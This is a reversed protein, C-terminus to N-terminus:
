TCEENSLDFHFKNLSQKFKEPHFIVESLDKFIKNAFVFTNFIKEHLSKHSGSFNNSCLYDFRWPFNPYNIVDEPSLNPNQSIYAWSDEFMEPCELIDSFNISINDPLLLKNWPLDPTMIMDNMSIGPNTSLTDWCWPKDRNNLVTCIDINPNFSLHYFNIDECLVTSIEKLDDFTLGPNYHLDLWNLGQDKHKIVFEKTLNPNEMVAKMNWPLDPSSEIDDITFASNKSLNYWCWKYETNKKIFELTLNPNRSVQYWSWNFNTNNEIFEITIMPNSALFYTVINKHYKIEGNSQVLYEFYHQIQEKALRKAIFKDEYTM